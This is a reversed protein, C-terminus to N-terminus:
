RVPKIEHWAAGEIPDHYADLVKNIAGAVQLCDGETWWESLYIVIGRSLLDLTRPCMDDAYPPLPKDYYPCTWPCGEATASKQELVHEWYRYIHWDRAGGSTFVSASVGEARLAEALVEAHPADPAFFAMTYGVIGDVDRVQQPVIDKHPRLNGTVTKYVHRMRELRAPAKKFQVLNVAGELESLRYNTGCFLEGEEREKAYRDPRWCAGTDHHNQARVYLREDDTIVLGAEGAGVYKYSSISFCGLDGFTGCRKGKYESGCAQATDEIVVLDHETALAMIPDMDCVTGIMHVPVIAKTKPGIKKAVDLPDITLSEDIEAIVPIAKASVVAAATAFFTYGPVIVECGPGIGAAIYATELASTGSHVALAYKTRLFKAAEEEFATVKSPRPNYYRTLLPGGGIDEGEVAARIAQQAEASFGWTDALELFEDVGVKPQSPAELGTVAPSGGQVALNKQLDQRDTM